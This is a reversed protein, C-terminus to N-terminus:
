FWTDKRYQRYRDGFQEQLVKEEERARFLNLPIVVAFLYIMGFVSGCALFLGFLTLGIGGYIPHRLYKYIGKAVLTRAGPLVALSTGLHIMALIWLGAGFGGIGLGIYVLDPYGFGFNKPSFYAVAVPLFYVLPLIVNM